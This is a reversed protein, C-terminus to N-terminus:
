VPVVGSPVDPDTCESLAVNRGAIAPSCMCWDLLFLAPRPTRIWRWRQCSSRVFRVLVCNVPYPLCCLFRVSMVLGKVKSKLLMLPSKMPPRVAPMTARGSARAKPSWVARPAIAPKYPAMPMAMKAANKPPVGVCTEPGVAGIVTTEAETMVLESSSLPACVTSSAMGSMRAVNKMAPANCTTKPIM